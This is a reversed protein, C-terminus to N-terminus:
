FSYASALWVGFVNKKNGLFMGYDLGMKFYVSYFAKVLAFLSVGGGFSFQQDLKPGLAQELKWVAGLSVGATYDAKDVIPFFPMIHGEVIFGSEATKGYVEMPALPSFSVRVSLPINNVALLGGMFNLGTFKASSSLTGGSVPPQWGFVVGLFNKGAKSKNTIKKDSDKKADVNNQANQSTKKRPKRKSEAHVRADKMLPRSKKAKLQLTKSSEGEISSQDKVERLVKERAWYMQNEKFGKKAQIFQTIVDVESIYGRIKKPKNIYVKYFSGFLNKPRYIRTSVAIIRNNKVRTLQPSDFDPKQYLIAQNRTVYARQILPPKVFTKEKEAGAQLSFFIFFLSFINRINKM